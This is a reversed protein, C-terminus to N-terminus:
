RRKTKKKRVSWGFHGIYEGLGFYEGHAYVLLGARKMDFAGTEPDIYQEDARVGVIDALFLDHSGLSTIERVRCELSIPSEEILPVGLVTGAEKTFGCAAFKDERRGSVVGCWDTERAMSVTSLNIGFAGQEKIISHSHREPRIGVVCMPPNTCATSVWSATLINAGGYEMTGCSILVAPLPYILTGPKWDVRRM